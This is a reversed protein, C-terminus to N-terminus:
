IDTKKIECFLSVRKVETLSEEEGHQLIQMYMIKACLGTVIEFDYLDDKWVGKGFYM